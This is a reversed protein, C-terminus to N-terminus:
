EKAHWLSTLDIGPIKILTLQKCISRFARHDNQKLALLQRQIPSEIKKISYVCKGCCGSFNLEQVDPMDEATWMRLFESVVDYNVNCLNSRVLPMSIIKSEHLLVKKMKEVTEIQAIFTVIMAVCDKGISPRLECIVIILDNYRKRNM